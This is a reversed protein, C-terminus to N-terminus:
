AEHRNGTAQQRNGLLIGYPGDKLYAVTIEKKGENTLETTFQQVSNHIMVPVTKLSGHYRSAPPLYRNGDQGPLLRYDSQSLQPSYYVFNDMPIKNFLKAWMQVQWQDPIFSWDPSVLLQKFKDAGILTLLGLVTHYMPSGIPNPDTNNAVLILKGNSKLAPIAAVGAKATQYHNVGVFGAHTVVIDYEHSIQICSDKQLREVASQHAKELDGAFVGTIRFDRDLTVNIIFDVGAKRAIELAEEHCPNNELQLDRANKSALMPAGHFVYTGEEGILGPCVSKRGGSAGAMFHSEVLGTLIKLDAAMYDSDIHIQSGRSTKGLNVLHTHDRCNHNKVQIGKEFVRPDLMSRLEPEALARHTGNAVLVLIREKTFGHELLRRIVPWLIGSEGKYPVPRTNDSVVVVARAAPNTQLKSGIIQDLGPTGIPHNLAAQIADAMNELPVAENLALIDTQDPLDIVLSETGLNMIGTKM